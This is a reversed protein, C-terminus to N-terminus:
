VNHTYIFTYPIGGLTEHFVYRIDCSYAACQLM